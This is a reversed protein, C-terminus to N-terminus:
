LPPEPSSQKLDGDASLSDADSAGLIHHAQEEDPTTLSLRSEESWLLCDRATRFGDSKRRIRDIKWSTKPATRVGPWSEAVLL